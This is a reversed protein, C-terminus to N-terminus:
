SREESGAQATASLLRLNDKVGFTTDEKGRAAGPSGEGFGASANPPIRPGARTWLLHGYKWEGSEKEYTTGLAFAVIRGNKAEAVLSLRPDQNFNTTVEYADWTRYLTSIELSHFLQHGLRYVSPIDDVQMERLDVKRDPSRTMSRDAKM